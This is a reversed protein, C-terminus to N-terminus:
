GETWKRIVMTRTWARERHVVEKVAEKVMVEERTEKEEENM